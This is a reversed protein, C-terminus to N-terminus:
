LVVSFIFFAPREDRETSRRVLVSMELSGGRGSVRGAEMMAM